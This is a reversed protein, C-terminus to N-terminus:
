DESEEESSPTLQRPPTVADDQSPLLRRRKRAPESSMAPAEEDGESDTVGDNTGEEQAGEEAEEVVAPRVEASGEVRERPTPRDPYYLVATAETTGRQYRLQLCMLGARCDLLLSLM